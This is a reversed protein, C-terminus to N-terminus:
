LERGVKLHKKCRRLHLWLERNREELKNKHILTKVVADGQKPVEGLILLNKTAFAFRGWERWNTGISHQQSGPNARIAYGAFELMLGEAITVVYDEKLTLKLQIYREIFHNTFIFGASRHKIETASGRRFFLITFAAYINEHPISDVVLFLANKKDIVLSKSYEIGLVMQIRKSQERVYPRFRQPGTKEKIQDVKNIISKEQHRRHGRALTDTIVLGGPTKIRMYARHNDQSHSGSYGYAGACNTLLPSCNM